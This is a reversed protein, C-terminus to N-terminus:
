KKEETQSDFGPKNEQDDLSGELVKNSGASNSIGSGISIRRSNQTQSMGSYPTSM